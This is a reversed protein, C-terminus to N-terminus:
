NTFAVALKVLQVDGSHIAFSIPKKKLAVCPNNQKLFAVCFGCGRQQQQQQEGHHFSSM